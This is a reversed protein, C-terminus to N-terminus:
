NSHTNSLNYFTAQVYDSATGTNNQNYVGAKFYMYQGGVDYGSNSMDVYKEVDGKGERLITVWMDNGVVKVTYSFKEDLAIGDEPNSASKSRSGIMDYYTEDAANEEHAIYISGLENGPLKRYYLRVPEDDNAHIQGVIVRGVQNDDGTTTVYNVALTAKLDGDYGGANTKDAQPASGFVWNNKTVGQTDIDTNGARLMERLETRTYSTNTSTKAGSIPCKFVMGGDDSTYFYSENEYGANLPDEKITDAKGNGDEDIPISINWTSLDFNVSPAVNPDLSGTEMDTTDDTTTDNTTDDKTEEEEVEEIVEKAIEDPEAADTACSFSFLVLILALMHNAMRFIKKPFGQEKQM